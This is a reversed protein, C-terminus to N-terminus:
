IKIILCLSVLLLLASILTRNILSYIWKNTENTEQKKKKSFYKSALKYEEM